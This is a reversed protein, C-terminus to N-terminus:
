RAKQHGQSDQMAKNVLKEAFMKTKKVKYSLTGAHHVGNRNQSFILISKSFYYMANYEELLDEKMTHHPKIMVDVSQLTKERTAERNGTPAYRQGSTKKM